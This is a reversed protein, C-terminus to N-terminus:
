RQTQKSTGTMRIGHAITTGDQFMDQNLRIKEFVLTTSLINLGLLAHRQIAMKASSLILHQRYNAQCAGLMTLSAADIPDIPLKFGVGFIYILSTTGITM